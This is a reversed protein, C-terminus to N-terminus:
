PLRRLVGHGRWVYAQLTQLVEPLQSEIGAIQLFQTVAVHCASRACSKM